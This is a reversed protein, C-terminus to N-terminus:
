LRGIEKQTSYYSYVRIYSYEFDIYWDLNFKTCFKFLRKCHSQYLCKDVHKPTIRYDFKNQTIGVGAFNGFIKKIESLFFEHLEDSNSFKQKM